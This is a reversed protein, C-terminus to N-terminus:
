SKAGSPDRLLAARVRDYVTNGLVRKASNRLADRLAMARLADGSCIDEFARLSLDRMIAVRGLAFRDTAPENAYARSTAVTKFGAERAINVVREDCRGGPCSFHEIPRGVISELQKKAEAIERRLGAEDLDTLYPHTMSHCGLEFGEDGLQRAQQASLYGPKGLFGTTIYFTAGFGAEKLLPAATILDTECGDDFTIAVAPSKQFTLAASVGLGQWGHAKLFELQAQFEAVPLIYRVYGPDSQRLARGPLELEHYMLFVTRPGVM